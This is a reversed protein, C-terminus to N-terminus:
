IIKVDYLVFVFNYYMQMTVRLSYTDYVIVLDVPILFIDVKYFAIADSLGDFLIFIILVTAKCLCFFVDVILQSLIGKFSSVAM